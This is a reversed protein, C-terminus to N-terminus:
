RPRGRIRRTIDLYELSHSVPRYIRSVLSVTMQRPNMLHYFRVQLVFFILFIPDNISSKPKFRTGQTKLDGNYTQSPDPPPTYDHQWYTPTPGPNIPQQAM